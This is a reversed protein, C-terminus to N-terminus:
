ATQVSKQVPIKSGCDVVVCQGDEDCRHKGDSPKRYSERPASFPLRWPAHAAERHVPKGTPTVNPSKQIRRFRGKAGKSQSAGYVDWGIHEELHGDPM